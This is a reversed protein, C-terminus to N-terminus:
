GEGKRGSSKNSLVCCLIIIKSLAISSNSALLLRDRANDFLPSRTANKRMEAMVGFLWGAM